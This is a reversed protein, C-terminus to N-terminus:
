LCFLLDDVETILMQISPNLEYGSGKSNKHSPSSIFTVKTCLSFLLSILMWAKKPHSLPAQSKVSKACVSNILV